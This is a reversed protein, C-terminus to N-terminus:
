PGFKLHRHVYLISLHMNEDAFIWAKLLVIRMSIYVQDATKGPAMFFDSMLMLIVHLIALTLLTM